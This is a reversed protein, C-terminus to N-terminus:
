NLYIRPVRWGLGVLVQATVTGLQKAVDFAYQTVNGDTGYITAIDGAQVGEVETVDVATLDMSVIGVVPAFQGRVIVKGHNAMGRQIGDAYGAALIAIRSPREARFKANYGIAAGAPVDRLSIIRARFSLAPNLRVNRAADATRTPPDYNQHYGYLIAGPRVADAWTEPRSIIAASNAMHVIGPDLGIERMHTVAALFVRTQDPTESTTFVESSAFHTFTGMLRLHKCDALARAFCDVSAPCLGLRNMGSDIKLHIGLPGRLKGSARAAAKELTGLQECNTVSPTLGYEIIRKEEGPWFGTLVLVPKKIGAERLEIGEASCTVCFQDAGARGLAKAAAPGGHGYGNGKVVALIGVRKKTSGAAPKASDLHGRIARLNHELAKTRIEAWVPRGVIKPAQTM